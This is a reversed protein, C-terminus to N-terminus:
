FVNLIRSNIWQEYGPNLSSMMHIVTLSDIAAVGLTISIAGLREM